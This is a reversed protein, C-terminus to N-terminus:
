RATAPQSPHPNVPTTPFCFQHKYPKLNPINAQWSFSNLPCTYHSSTPERSPPDHPCYLESTELTNCSGDQFELVLSVGRRLCLDQSFRTLKGPGPSEYETRLSVPTKPTGPEATSYTLRLISTEINPIFNAPSVANQGPRAVPRLMHPTPDFEPFPHQEGCM